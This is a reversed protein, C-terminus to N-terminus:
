VVCVYQNIIEFPLNRIKELKVRVLSNDLVVRFGSRVGMLDLEDTFYGSLKSAFSAMDGRIDTRGEVMNSVRSSDSCTLSVGPFGVKRECLGFTFRAINSAAPAPIERLFDEVNKPTELRIASPIVGEITEVFDGVAVLMTRNDRDPVTEGATLHHGIETTVTHAVGHSKGRDPIASFILCYEAHDITCRIGIVVYLKAEIYAKTIDFNELTLGDKSHESTKEDQRLGNNMGSVILADSYTNEFSM